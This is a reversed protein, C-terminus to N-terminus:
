YEIFTLNDEEFNSKAGELLLKRTKPHVGKTCLAHFSIHVSSGVLKYDIGAKLRSIAEDLDEEQESLKSDVGRKLLSSLIRETVNITSSCEDSDAANKKDNEVKKTENVASDDTLGITSEAEQPSTTEARANLFNDLSDSVPLYKVSNIVLFMLHEVRSKPTLYRASVLINITNPNSKTVENFKHDVCLLFQGGISKFCENDLLLQILEESRGIEKNPHVWDGYQPEIEYEIPIQAQIPANKESHTVNSVDKVEKDATACDSKVNSTRNNSESDSKNSVSENKAVLLPNETLPKPKKKGKKKKGKPEPAKVVKKDDSNEDPINNSKDKNCAVITARETDSDSQEVPEMNNTSDKIGENSAKNSYTTDKTPSNCDANNSNIADLDEQSFLKSSKDTFLIADNNQTIKLLGSSNKPLPKDGLAHFPWELRIFGKGGKVSKGNLLALAEDETVINSYYMSYQEDLLGKVIGRETMTHLLTSSKHPISSDHVLLKKIVQDICQPWRLYVEDQLIILENKLIWSGSLEQM